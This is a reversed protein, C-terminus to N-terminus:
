IVSGLVFQRLISPQLPNSPHNQSVRKTRECPYTDPYRALRGAGSCSSVFANISYMGLYNYIFCVPVTFYTHVPNLFRSKSCCTAVGDASRPIYHLRLVCVLAYCYRCIAPDYEEHMRFRADGSNHMCDRVMGTYAVFPQMPYNATIQM